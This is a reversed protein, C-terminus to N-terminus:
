LLYYPKGRPLQKIGGKMESDQIGNGDPKPQALQEVSVYNQFNSLVTVIEVNLDETCIINDKMTSCKLSHKQLLHKLATVDLLGKRVHHRSISREIDSKLATVCVENEPSYLWIKNESHELACFKPRHLNKDYRLKKFQQFYGLKLKSKSEFMFEIALNTWDSSSEGNFSEFVIEVKKCQSKYAKILDVADVKKRGRWSFVCRNPTNTQDVEVKKINPHLGAHVLGLSNLDLESKTLDITEIENYDLKILLGDLVDDDRAVCFFAGHEYFAIAKKDAIQRPIIHTLRNVPDLKFSFSRPKLALKQLEAKIRDETYEETSILQIKFDDTNRVIDVCMNHLVTNAYDLEHQFIYQLERL